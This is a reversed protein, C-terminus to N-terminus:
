GLFVIKFSHYIKNRYKTEMDWCIKTLIKIFRPFSNFDLVRKRPQNLWFKHKIYSQLLLKRCLFAKSVTSLFFPYGGHNKRLFRFYFLEASRKVYEVNTGWFHCLRTTRWETFARTHWRKRQKKEACYEVSM